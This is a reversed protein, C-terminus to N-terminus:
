RQRLLVDNEQYMAKASAALVELETLCGCAVIVKLFDHDMLLRM